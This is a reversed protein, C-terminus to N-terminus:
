TIDNFRFDVSREVVVWCQIGPMSARETHLLIPLSKRLYERLLLTAFSLCLWSKCDRRM